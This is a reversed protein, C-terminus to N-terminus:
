KTNIIIVQLFNQLNAAIEEEDDSSLVDVAEIETEEIQDAFKWESDEVNRCNPCIM